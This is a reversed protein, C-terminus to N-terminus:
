INKFFKQNPIQIVFYCGIDSVLQSLENFVNDFKPRGYAVAILVSILPTNQSIPLYRTTSTYMPQLSKALSFQAM